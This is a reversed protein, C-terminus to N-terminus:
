NFPNEGDGDIKIDDNGESFAGATDDKQTDAKPGSFTPGASTPGASTPGSPGGSAPGGSTPGGSTPGGSAGQNGQNNRYGQNNNQDRSQSAAEIRKRRDLDRKENFIYNLANEVYYKFTVAEDLTLGVGFKDSGDRIINLYFSQRDSLWNLYIQIKGAPSSHYLGKGDKLSVYRTLSDIMGGAEFESIKVTINNPSGKASNGKFSAVGRQADWSAQRVATLYLAFGTKTPGTSLSLFCGTNQKNPKFLQFSM